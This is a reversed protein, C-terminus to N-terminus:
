AAPKCSRKWYRTRHAGCCFPKQGPLLKRDRTFEIGCDTCAFRYITRTKAGLPEAIGHFAQSRKLIAREAAKSTMRKSPKHPATIPEIENKAWWRRTGKERYIRGPQLSKDIVFEHKPDYISRVKSGKRILKRDARRRRLSQRKTTVGKACEKGM